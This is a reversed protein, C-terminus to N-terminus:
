IHFILRAKVHDSFQTKISVIICAAIAACPSLGALGSISAGVFNVSLIASM